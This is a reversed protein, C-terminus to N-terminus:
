TKLKGGVVSSAKSMIPNTSAIDKLKTTGILYMVVMTWAPLINVYPIMEIVGGLGLSGFRKLSMMKIGYMHFWFLFTMFVFLSVVSAFINGVVPIWGVIAQCIDFLLATFVMILSTATSITPEKEM